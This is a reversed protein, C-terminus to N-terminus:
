HNLLIMKSMYEDREREKKRERERDRERDRETHIYIYIYFVTSVDFNLGLTIAICHFLIALILPLKKNKFNPCLPPNHFFLPPPDEYFSPTEM